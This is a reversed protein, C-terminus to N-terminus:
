QRAKATKYEACLLVDLQLNGEQWRRGVIVLKVWWQKRSSFLTDREILVAESSDCTEAEM